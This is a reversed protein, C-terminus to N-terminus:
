AGNLKILGPFCALNKHRYKNEAKDVVKWDHICDVTWGYEIFYNNNMFSNDEAGCIDLLESINIAGTYENMILCLAKNMINEVVSLDDSQVFVENNLFKVSVVCNKGEIGMITMKM